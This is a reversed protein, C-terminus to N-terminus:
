EEEDKKVAKKKPKKNAKNPKTESKTDEDDVETIINKATIREVIMDALKGYDIAESFQDAAAASAEGGALNLEEIEQEKLKKNLKLDETSYKLYKQVLFKSSFYKIENGEIDMDIMSEKMNQIFEVRKQMLEMEMMEEFLNYSKYQLSIAELFERNDQLEPVSLAMQLKLPKLIIQAFQNRLRNVYRAFDIETRAVSTADAGFWTEGSEQDFRSLPIKSVKYLNNKYFKLQDNDNLEPGDGGLTDIEPSGSDNEPFWYEKNFPLTAQGNITLEGTDSVFKIDEKYRNMASSLTQMGMTKNMGKVPITFKMKYSANTITWILQAQEVIRYINFPRILRELYSVRNISETEQFPVYIVQSDLLQREKGQIGKFQIWYWKNNEYKKTLTAPDLPILGIIETPKDLNDYVIEWALIGEILWRKFDDWAKYKWNLMKYFRRYYKGMKNEIAKQHETKVDHLEQIEIFPEAFYTLDTDYVISENSMVDLIDELEPQMALKRLAERKQPYDKEFFNRDANSKTKWSSNLQTFLDQNLLQEEKPLFNKDAPIARMNDIVKDDYTMGLRAMNSFFKAIKGKKKEQQVAAYQPRFNTTQKFGPINKPDSLEYGEGIFMSSSSQIEKSTVETHTESM